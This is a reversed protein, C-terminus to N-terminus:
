LNYHKAFLTLDGQRNSLIKIILILIYLLTLSVNSFCLNQKVNRITIVVIIHMLKLYATIEM